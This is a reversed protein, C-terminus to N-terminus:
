SLIAQIARNNDRFDIKLIRYGSSFQKMQESRRKLFIPLGFGGAEPFPKRGRKGHRFYYCLGQPKPFPHSADPLLV